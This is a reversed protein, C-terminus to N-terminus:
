LTEYLVVILLLYLEKLSALLLIMEEARPLANPIADSAVIALTALAIFSTTLLPVNFQLPLLM